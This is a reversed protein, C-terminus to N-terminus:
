EQEDRPLGDTGPGVHRTADRNGLPTRDDYLSYKLAMKDADKTYQSVPLSSSGPQRDILKYQVALKVADSIPLKSLAEITVNQHEHERHVIKDEHEKKNLLKEAQIDTLFKYGYPTKTKPVIGKDAYEKLLHKVIERKYVETQRQM